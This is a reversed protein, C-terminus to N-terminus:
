IKQKTFFHNKRLTVNATKIYTVKKYINKPNLVIQVLLEYM